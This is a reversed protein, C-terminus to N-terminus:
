FGAMGMAQVFLTPVVVIGAGILLYLLVVVFVQLVEPGALRRKKMLRAIRPSRSTEPRMAAHRLALSRQKRLM